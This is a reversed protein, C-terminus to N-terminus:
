KLNLWYLKLINKRISVFLTPIELNNKCIGRLFFSFFFSIWRRINRTTRRPFSRTRFIVPWMWHWTLPRFFLGEYSRNFIGGVILNLRARNFRKGSWLRSYNVRHFYRTAPVLPRRISVLPVAWAPEAYIELQRREYNNGSSFREEGKLLQELSTPWTVNNISSQATRHFQWRASFLASHSFVISRKALPLTAYRQVLSSHKFTVRHKIAFNHWESIQIRNHSPSFANILAHRSLPVFCRRTSSM